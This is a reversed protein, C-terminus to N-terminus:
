CIMHMTMDYVPINTSRVQWSGMCRAPWAFRPGSPRQDFAFQICNPMLILILLSLYGLLQQWWIGFDGPLACSITKTAFDRYHADVSYCWLQYNLFFPYLLLLGESSSDYDDDCHRKITGTVRWFMFYGTYIRM